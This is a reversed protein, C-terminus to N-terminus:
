PLPEWHQKPQQGVYAPITKAGRLLAAHVRHYGDIIMRDIPDYVIPPPQTDMAAYDKALDPDYGYGDLDIQDIPLQQLQYSRFRQINHPVEGEYADERDNLDAVYNVVFDASVVAASESIIEHYRM